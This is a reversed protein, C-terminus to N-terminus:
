VEESAQLGNGNSQIEDQCLNIVNLNHIVSFSSIFYIAKFILVKQSDCTHLFDHKVSHLDFSKQTM